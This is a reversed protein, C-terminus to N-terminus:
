AMRRLLSRAHRVRPLGDGGRLRALADALATREAEGADPRECRMALVAVAPWAAQRAHSHDLATALAQVSRIQDGQAAHCRADLLHLEVGHMVEGLREVWHLGQDIEHRAAALDGARLAAEAAYLHGQSAGALVGRARHRAMGDRIRQLGEGAPAVGGMSLAWGAYWRAPGDAQGIDNPGAAVELAPLAQMVRAPDDLAAGVVAAGWAALMSAMPASLREARARAQEVHSLAADIDGLALLPFAANTLLSVTPDIPFPAGALREGMRACLTLGERLCAVAPGYAGQFSLAAGRLNCAGIQLATDGLRRAAAEVRDAMQLARAYDARTQHIWGLGADIWGQAAGPEARAGLQRARELAAEREPAAFGLYQAFAVSQEAQLTLELADRERPDMDRCREALTLARQALRVAEQPVFRALALRVAAVSSRVAAALDLSREHHEVMEAASVLLGLPAATQLAVAARRHLEARAAPGLRQYLVHRHLAHRFAHRADFSGDSLQELALPALWFGQRALRDVQARVSMRSRELMAALPQSWFEVGLVAAAELLAQDEPAILEWQREILHALTQTLQSPPDTLAEFPLRGQVTPHQQEAADLWTALYLPLGGTQAHLHQAAGRPLAARPYRQAMYDAVQSPTFTDLQLSGALARLRLRVHLDAAASLRGHGDDPRLSAVLLWRAPQRHSALHELLLLTPPDSWQLDELVVLLPHRQALQDLLTGLERLMRGPGVGHIELQVAAREAADLYWPMQALWTPAVHRLLPLLEPAGRCLGNLAELVPMYPADQGGQEVCQGHLVRSAGAHRAFYDILTTKGVGAEGVVFVLQRESAMARTWAARLADLAAARGIPVSAAAGTWAPPPTHQVPSATSAGAPQLAAAFRYGRRPVTEIYHPQTPDDQLAARLQNIATKVVGESVDQGPWVEDLLMGKTVLQGRHAVLVCLLGFVKPQLAVEKGERLLRAAAEDLVFPGFTQRPTHM